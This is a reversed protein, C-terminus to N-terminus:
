PRFAIPLSLSARPGPPPSPSPSPAVPPTNTPTPPVPGTATPPTTGTPRPAEPCQNAERPTPSHCTTWLAGGDPVRAFSVDTDQAGFAVVDLTATRSSLRVADGAKSLKFPAHAPGQEPDKDCWVLYHGGAPLTVDPLAYRWPEDASPGLYFGALAVAAPGRNYLELWDDYEGAEDALTRANDAMVENIVLDGDPEIPLDPGVVTYRWPQTLNAEPHFASHGGRLAVRTYYTVVAGAAQGPLAGRWTAGDQALEVAAPPGQNVRYVLRVATPVDGGSFRLTVTAPQGPGPADPARTHEVLQHDPAALAGRTRLWTVRDRAFKLVGPAKGGPGMNMPSTVDETLNRDFLDLSFLRNPDRVLGPRALAQLAEGRAKLRAADFAGDLLARYHAAYDARWEPVALLRRLVPRDDADDLAFPDVHTGSGGAGWPGLELDGFSLSTDWVLFHLLGDEEARYLFYNHGFYYSDYNVFLNNAALYWLARDVDLFRPVATPLSADPVGGAAAPADLVRAAERVATLGAAEAGQTKVEYLPRYKALDEGEWELASHFTTAGMGPGAPPDCKVLIGDSGPFWESVFTGEVQEVALYLGLYDGNVYVQAYATQQTPMFPRLAETMLSERVYSPDSYGNNLNVVDYGRLRQGPVTADLSLNLPRKRSTIFMSSLGKYRVGVQELTEGEVMLRAPVNGTDGAATLAAEWNSVDFTLHYERVLTPEYLDGGAAPAARGGLAGVAAGAVLALVVSVLVRRLGTM